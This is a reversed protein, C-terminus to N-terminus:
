PQHPVARVEHLDQGRTSATLARLEDQASPAFVDLDPYADQDAVAM